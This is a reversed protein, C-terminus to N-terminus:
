VGQSLRLPDVIAVSSGDLHLARRLNREEYILIVVAVICLIFIAVGAAIMAIMALEM